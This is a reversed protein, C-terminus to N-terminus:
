RSRTSSGPKAGHCLPSARSLGPSLKCTSTRSASAPFVSCSSTIASRGITRVSLPARSPSMVACCIWLRDIMLRPAISSSLTRGPVTVGSWDPISVTPKLKAPAL